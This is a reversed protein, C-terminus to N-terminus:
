HTAYPPRLMIGIAIRHPARTALIRYSTFRINGGWEARADDWFLLYGYFTTAVTCFLAVM